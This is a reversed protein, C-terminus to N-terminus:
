HPTTIITRAYFAVIGSQRLDPVSPSQGDDAVEHCLCALVSGEVGLQLHEKGAPGSVAWRWGGRTLLHDRELLVKQFSDPFIVPKGLAETVWIECNGHHVQTNLGVGVEKRQMLQSAQPVPRIGVRECYTGEELSGERGRLNTLPEGLRRQNEVTRQDCGQRPTPRFPPQSVCLASPFSLM